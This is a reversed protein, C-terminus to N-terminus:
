SKRMSNSKLIFNETLFRAAIGDGTLKFHVLRGPFECSGGISMLKLFTLTVLLGGFLKLTGVKLFM